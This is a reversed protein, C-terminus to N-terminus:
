SKFEPMSSGVGDAIVEVMHSLVPGAHETGPASSKPDNKRCTQYQYIYLLSTPLRLSDDLHMCMPKGRGIQIASCALGFAGLFACGLEKIENRM